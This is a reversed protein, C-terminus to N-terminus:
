PGQQTCYLLYSPHQWTCYALINNTTKFIESAIKDTSKSLKFNSRINHDLSNTIKSYDKTNKRIELLFECFPVHEFPNGFAKLEVVYIPSPLKGSYLLLVVFSPPHSHLFHTLVRRSRTGTSLLHTTGYEGYRKFFILHWM